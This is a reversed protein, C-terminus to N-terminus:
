RPAAPVFPQVWAMERERPSVGNAKFKSSIVRARVYLEDGRPMYCATPGNTEALVAGIAPSYRRSVPRSQEAPLTVVDSRTDFGRRTGIFQTLYTVNTEAEIVLSLQGPGRQVEQLTVGTSAYFDGTEMARIIGDATLRPTRVMVWGRGPNANSRSYAHFQHADDVGLGFMLGLRLQTLRFALAIDWLRETNPHAADGENHVLPHGNYVEFFREGRLRMLDEVTVVWEFNPHAVHPFMAQGTWSRQALVADVNRQLVDFVSQGGAPRVPYRLNTATVHVPALGDNDRYYDTVEEGQILLFRDPAEFLRRYEPLTKLRVKHFDATVQQEVWRAGFQEVYKRTLAEGKENGITLWKAGLHLTNHDSIGLFHYGHKRYWDVVVEPFDTGDSWLTHTHLNGKWWKSPSPASSAASVLGLWAMAAIAAWLCRGVSRAQACPRVVNWMGM